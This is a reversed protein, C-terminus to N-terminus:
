FIFLVFYILGILLLLLTVIFEKSNKLYKWEMLMQFTFTVILLSLWFWKMTNVDSIDFVFLILFISIFSMIFKGYRNINKGNTESIKEREGGIMWKRLFPNLIALFIILLPISISM